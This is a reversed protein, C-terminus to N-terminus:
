VIELDCSPIDITGDNHSYLVVCHPEPDVASWDIQPGQISTRWVKKEIMGVVLGIGHSRDKSTTMSSNIHRVLDGVKM